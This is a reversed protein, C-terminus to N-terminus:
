RVSNAWMAAFKPSEAALAPGMYPRPQIHVSHSKGTKRDVIEADGGHELTEPAGTPRNILSPGIVVSDASHDYAFNIGAEGTKLLGVHSSPPSGPTSSRKRKRISSRARTRVFAGQKSLVKVRARGVAKLVAERDFFNAKSIKITIM